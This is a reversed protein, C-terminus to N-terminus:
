APVVVTCAILQHGAAAGAALDVDATAGDRCPLSWLIWTLSKTDSISLGLKEVLLRVMERKLLVVIVFSENPYNELLIQLGSKLARVDLSALPAASSGTPSFDSVGVLGLRGEEDKVLVIVNLVKFIGTRVFDELSSLAGNMESHLKFNMVVYRLRRLEDQTLGDGAQKPKM